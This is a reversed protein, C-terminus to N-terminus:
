IRARQFRREHARIDRDENEEFFDLMIDVTDTEDDLSNQWVCFCGTNTSLSNDALIERHKYITNVDFIFM